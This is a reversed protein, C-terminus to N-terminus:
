KIEKNSRVKKCGFCVQTLCDHFSSYAIQQSHFSECKKIHRHVTEMDQCYEYEFLVLYNLKAYEGFIRKAENNYAKAAEEKTGFYGIHVKKNDVTIYSQWKNKLSRKDESVGKFGSTNHSPITSNRTNQSATVVRLNEKRNDLKDGNKLDTQMNDPTRMIERHMWIMKKVRKGNKYGGNIGRVAYGRCGCSWKFKNLNDFDEDDVIACKKKSLENKRM